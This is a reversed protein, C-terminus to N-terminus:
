QRDVRSPSRWGRWLEGRNAQREGAAAFGPRAWFTFDRTSWPMKLFGLRGALLGMKSPRTELPLSICHVEVMFDLAELERGGVATRQDLYLAM